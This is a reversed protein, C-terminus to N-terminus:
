KVQIERLICRYKLISKKSGWEWQLSLFIIRVFEKMRAQRKIAIVAMVM